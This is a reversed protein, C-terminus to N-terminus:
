YLEVLEILVVGLYVADWFGSSGFSLWHLYFLVKLEIWSLALLSIVALGKGLLWLVVGIGLLM